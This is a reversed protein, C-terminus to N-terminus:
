ERDVVKVGPRMADQSAGSSRPHLGFLTITLGIAILIGAAVVLAIAAGNSGRGIVLALVLLVAAPADVAILLKLNRRKTRM